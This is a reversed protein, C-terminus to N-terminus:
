DGDRRMFAASMGEESQNEAEQPAVHSKLVSSVSHLSLSFNLFNSGVTALFTCWGMEM